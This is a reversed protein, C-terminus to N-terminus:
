TTASVITWSGVTAQIDAYSGTTASLLGYSGTTASLQTTFSAAYATGDTVPIPTDDCVLAPAQDDVTYAYEGGIIPIVPAFSPCPGGASPIVWSM